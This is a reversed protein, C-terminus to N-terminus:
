RALNTIFVLKIDLTLSEQKFRTSITHYTALVSVAPGRQETVRDGRRNGLVIGKATGTTWTRPVPDPLGPSERAFWYAYGAIHAVGPQADRRPVM